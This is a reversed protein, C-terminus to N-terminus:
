LPNCLHMEHVEKGSQGMPVKLFTSSQMLLPVSGTHKGHLCSIDPSKIENVVWPPKEEAFQEARQLVPYWVM